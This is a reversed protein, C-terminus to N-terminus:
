QLSLQQVLAISTSWFNRNIPGKNSLTMWVSLGFRPPNFASWPAEREFHEMYLNAVIPSELSGM